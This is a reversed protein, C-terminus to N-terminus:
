PHIGWVGITGGAGGVAILTGDPSFAIFFQYKIHSNLSCIERGSEVDWLNIVGESDSSALLAGDPSMALGDVFSRHGEFDRVVQGSEIDM